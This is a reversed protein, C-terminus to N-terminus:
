RYGFPSDCSGSFYEDSFLDDFDDVTLLFTVLFGPTNKVM